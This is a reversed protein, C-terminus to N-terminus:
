LVIQGQQVEPAALGVATLAENSPKVEQKPKEVGELKAVQKTFLTM